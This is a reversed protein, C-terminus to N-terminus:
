GKPERYKDIIEIVWSLATAQARANQTNLCQNYKLPKEIEARIKDLVDREGQQYAKQLDAGIDIMIRYAREKLASKDM